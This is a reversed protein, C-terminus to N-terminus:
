LDRIDVQLNWPLMDNLTRQFLGWDDPWAGVENWVQIADKIVKAVREPDGTRKARTLAAKQKPWARNMRAYDIPRPEPRAAERARADDILGM